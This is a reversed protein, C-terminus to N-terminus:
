VNRTMVSTRIKVTMSSAFLAYSVILSSISRILGDARNKEVIEQAHQFFIFCFQRQFTRLNILFYVTVNPVNICKNFYKQMCKIMKYMSFHLFM